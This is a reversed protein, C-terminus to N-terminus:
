ISEVITRFKERSIRLYDRDRSFVELTVTGDYGIGKLERIVKPFDVTGAGIPLHNDEKGFNDSAHVHFIRDGLRHIFDLNRKGSKSGINAHGIDLTLKLNPFREFIEDFEEPEVLAGTRPFMNEICLCLGFRDATDVVVELSRSAYERAQDPAFVSLGVIYGPHFIVKLPRLEAALELCDLTEQVSAKRIAETLDALHLFSPLHCVLEMGHADLAKLLSASHHRIISHHAQPPDMTLELYDFGLDSISKLEQLIPRVPFNMAGFKM